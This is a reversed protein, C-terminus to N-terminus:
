DQIPDLRPFNIIVPCHILSIRSGTRYSHADILLAVVICEAPRYCFCHLAAQLATSLFLSLLGAILLSELSLRQFVCM